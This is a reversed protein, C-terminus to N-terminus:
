CGRHRKYFFIDIIDTPDPAQAFTFSTGGDFTYAEGPNQVVGNIFILLLADLNILSSEPNDEDIEFSLM